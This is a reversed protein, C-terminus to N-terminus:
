TIQRNPIPFVSVKSLTNMSNLLDQDLAKLSSNSGSEASKVLNIQQIDGFFKTLRDFSATYKQSIDNMLTACSNDDSGDSKALSQLEDKLSNHQALQESTVKPVFPKNCAANPRLVPAQPEVFLKTANLNQTSSSTTRSIKSVDNM